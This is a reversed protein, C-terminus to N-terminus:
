AFSMLVAMEARSSEGETARRAVPASRKYSVSKCNLGAADNNHPAAPTTASPTTDLKGMAAHVGTIGVASDSGRTLYYATAASLGTVAALIPAVTPAM